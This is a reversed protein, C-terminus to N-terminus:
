DEQALHARILREVQATIVDVDDRHGRFTVAWSKSTTPGTVEAEVVGSELHPSEEALIHGDMLNRTDIGAIRDLEDLCEEVKAISEESGIGGEVKTLTARNFGTEEAFQRVSRIGHAERRHRIAAGRRLLDSNM